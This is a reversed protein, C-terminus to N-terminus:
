HCVLIGHAAFRVAVQAPGPDQERDLAWQAQRVLLALELARGLTLAFRRAGAEEAGAWWAEAGALAARAARAPGALASGAGELLAEVHARFAPFGCAGMAKMAELSLVDTTGEWISLVQADRLLVPLGTDEVYGAGGFCELLESCGAVAQRATTLKVLPTLLRQLAADGTGAEALGLQEAGHFALQFAGQAEAELGALTDQHLPQEALPAGFLFRKRAYDRALMIGRRLFSAATVANWTRTVNLM